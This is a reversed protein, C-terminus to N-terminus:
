AGWSLVGRKWIYTACGIFPTRGLFTAYIIAWKSCCCSIGIKFAHIGDMWEFSAAEKRASEINWDPFVPERM